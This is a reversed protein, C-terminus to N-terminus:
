QIVSAFYRMNQKSLYYNEIFHTVRISPPDCSADLPTTTVTPKGALHGISHKNM